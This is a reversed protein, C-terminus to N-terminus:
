KLEVLAQSLLHQGHHQQRHDRRREADVRGRVSAALLPADLVHLIADDQEIVATVRVDNLTGTDWPQGGSEAYFATRDLVVAPRGQYERRAAVTADFELLYSDRWYLRETASM